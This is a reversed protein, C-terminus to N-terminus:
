NVVKAVYEPITGTRMLAAIVNAAVAYDRAFEEKKFDDFRLKVYCRNKEIFTNAEIQEFVARACIKLLEPDVDKIQYMKSM